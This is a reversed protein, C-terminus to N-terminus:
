RAAESEETRVVRLRTELRSRVVDLEVAIVVAAGLAVYQWSSQVNMLNLGNQIVGLILAGVLTGIM